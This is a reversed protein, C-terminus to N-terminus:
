VEGNKKHLYDFTCVVRSLGHKDNKRKIADHIDQLSSFIMFEYQEDSPLPLLRKKKFENIWEIVQDHM